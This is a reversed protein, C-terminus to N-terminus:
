HNANTKRKRVRARYMMLGTMALTLLGLTSAILFINKVPRGIKKGFWDEWYHHMHLNSFSFREAKDSSSAIASLYGTSTEIYYNEKGFSVEVVPLRKNMMSYRDNFKNLPRSDRILNPSRGSFVTALYRGYAEDGDPLEDFGNVTFYKKQIKKQKLVSVQWYNNDYMKVVSVNLLSDHKNFVHKFSNHSNHFENTNFVTQLQKNKYEASNLKHLSHWAGSFSYLLTTAVFINGMVRHWSRSGSSKHNKKKMINYVFFGSLSTFFCTLSLFGILIHKIAGWNNLFSWSHTVAFFSIFWSRKDDIAASLKGTSTEIYLRLHDDREFQIRHVPLLVNSSKYEKNFSTVLQVDTINTNLRMNMSSHRKALTLLNASAGHHDTKGGGNPDSLFRQALYAAYQQDGRPLMQANYCSIYTLSDKGPQQVQYYFAGYLEIIRFNRFETIHHKKLAADPSIKIKTTDIVTKPLTQNMLQPKFMNMVPHLFGSFTWLLVPIAVILSTIRHWRYINRRLFTKM